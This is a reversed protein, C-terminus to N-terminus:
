SFCFIKPDTLKMKVSEFCKFNLNIPFIILYIPLIFIIILLLFQVRIVLNGLPAVPISMGVKMVCSQFRITSDMKKHTLLQSVGTYVLSYSRPKNIHLNNSLPISFRAM